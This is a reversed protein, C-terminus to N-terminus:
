GRGRRPPRRTSAPLAGDSAYEAEVIKSVEVGCNCAPPAQEVDVGVWPGNGLREAAVFHDARLIRLNVRRSQIRPHGGLLDRRRVLQTPRPQKLPIPGETSRATPDTSTTIAATSAYCTSSIDAVSSSFGISVTPPLTRVWREAYANANPAQIPTRIVELGEYHFLLNFAHSFKKDRDHILLRFPHGDGLQMVFNRAQQVVWAGNPSSTCAIYEIRRTALSVFFSM